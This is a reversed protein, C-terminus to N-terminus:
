TCEAAHEAAHCNHCLLVCSGLEGTLSAWSRLHSGAVRFRKAGPDVHHFCLARLCRDYGCRECRGGKYDVM